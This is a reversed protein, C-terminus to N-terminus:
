SKKAYRRKGARRANTRRKGGAVPRGPAHHDPCRRNPHKCQLKTWCEFPQGCDACHSRWCVLPVLEGDLREYLKSGSLQYRQGEIMVVTDMPPIIKFDIKHVVRPSRNKPKKPQAKKPASSAAPSSISINYTSAHRVCSGVYKTYPTRNKKMNESYTDTNMSLNRMKSSLLWKQSGTDDDYM